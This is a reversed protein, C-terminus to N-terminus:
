SKVLWHLSHLSSQFNAANELPAQAMWRAFSLAASEAGPGSPEVARSQRWLSLVHLYERISEPARPPIWGPGPAPQVTLTLWHNQAPPSCCIGTHHKKRSLKVFIRVPHRSRDIDISGGAPQLEIDGSVASSSVKLEIKGHEVDNYSSRVRVMPSCLAPNRCVPIVFAGSVEYEITSKFDQSGIGMPLTPNRHGGQVSSGVNLRITANSHSLHSSSGERWFIEAKSPTNRDGPSYSCKRALEFGSARESSFDATHQACEGPRASGVFRWTVPRISEPPNLLEPHSKWGVPERGVLTTSILSGVAEQLASHPIQALELLSEMRLEAGAQLYLFPANFIAAQHRNWIRKLAPLDDLDLGLEALEQTLEIAAGRGRNMVTALEAASGAVRAEEEFQDAELLYRSDLFLPTGQCEAQGLAQILAHAGLSLEGERGEIGAAGDLSPRLQGEILNWFTFKLAKRSDANEIRNSGLIPDCTSRLTQDALQRGAETLFRYRKLIALSAFSPTSTRSESVWQNARADAL